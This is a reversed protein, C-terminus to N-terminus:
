SFEESYNESDELYDESQKKELGQDLNKSNELDETLVKDEAAVSKEDTVSNNDQAKEPLYKFDDLDEQEMQSKPPAQVREASKKVNFIPSDVNPSNHFRQYKEEPSQNKEPIKALLKDREKPSPIKETEESLTKYKIDPNSIVESVEAFRQNKDQLNQNKEEGRSSGKTKERPSRIKEDLETFDPNDSKLQEELKIFEDVSDERRKGENIKHQKAPVVRISEKVVEKGHKESVNSQGSGNRKSRASPRSEPLMEDKNKNWSKESENADQNYLEENKNESAKDLDSGQEERHDRTEKDAFLPVGKFTKKTPPTDKRVKHYPPHEPERLSAKSGHSPESFKIHKEASKVNKENTSIPPLKTNKSFSNIAPSRHQKSQYSKLMEKMMKIESEKANVLEIAKKYEKQHVSSPKPEIPVSADKINSQLARIIEDRRKVDEQLKSVESEQTKIKKIVSKIQEDRQNVLDNNSAIEEKLKKIIKTKEDTKKESDKFLKEIKVNKEILDKNMEEQKELLVEATSRNKEREKLTKSLKACMNSKINLLNELEEIKSNANKLDNSIEEANKDSTELQERLENLNLDKENNQKSFKAAQDQLKFLINSLDKDKQAHRDESEKLKEQLDKVTQQLIKVNESLSAEESKPYAIKFDLIREPNYSYNFRVEVLREM